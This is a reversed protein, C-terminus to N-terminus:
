IFSIQSVTIAAEDSAKRQIDKESNLIKDLKNGMKEIVGVVLANGMCFYRFNEPMCTNTWDDPFGNLRECEVPTLIRLKGTVYDEIVHTSRNVSGESTLMTRGPSDLDDPFKMGGESYYYEHGNKIRHIKKANKLAKFKAMKNEDDFIFYNQSVENELRINRLTIPTFEHPKLDMTTIMGDSMIGSNKFDFQFKDSVEALDTFDSIDKSQMGRFYDAPFESQFFGKHLIWKELNSDKTLKKYYNTAKNFAFIFTRRRKQAFGFEAANIVRWEVAYDLKWLSYLMIGFDRGRQSAPSKLLRDVNELLIFPPNKAEVVEKIQWWLVGKRGQIGMAKTRAVSYDQCPFGGVLLNHEPITKKNVQAIDKNVHNPHKGFHSEYCDFAYQRTKGPEWQNAFVFNWGKNDDKGNLGVRFGGVGAFLECVTKKM